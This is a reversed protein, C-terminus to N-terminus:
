TITNAKDNKIKNAHEYGLFERHWIEQKISEKISSSLEGMPIKYKDLNM